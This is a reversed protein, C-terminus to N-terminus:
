RHLRPHKPDVFHKSRRMTWIVFPTASILGVVTDVASKAIVLAFISVIIKSLYGLVMFQIWFLFCCAVVLMKSMFYGGWGTRDAIVGYILFLLMIFFIFGIEYGLYGIGIIGIVWFLVLGIIWRVPKWKWEMKEEIYAEAIEDKFLEKIGM